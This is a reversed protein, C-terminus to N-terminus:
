RRRKSGEEMGSRMGRGGLASEDMTAMTPFYYHIPEAHSLCLLILIYNLIFDLFM